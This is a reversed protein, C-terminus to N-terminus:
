SIKKLFKVLMVSQSSLKMKCIKYFDVWRANKERGKKFNEVCFGFPFFRVNPYKECCFAPFRAFFRGRCGSIEFIREEIVDELTFETDFEELVASPFEFFDTEPWNGARQSLLCKGEYFPIGVAVLM